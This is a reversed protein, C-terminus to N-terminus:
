RTGGRSGNMNQFQMLIQKGKEVTAGVIPAYKKVFPPIIIFAIIIPAIIIFLRIGSLIAEWFMHREIKQLRADIANLQEQLSRHDKM